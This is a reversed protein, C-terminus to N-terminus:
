ASVVMMTVPSYNLLKVVKEFLREVLLAKKNGGLFCRCAAAWIRGCGVSNGENIGRMIRGNLFRGRGEGHEETVGHYFFEEWGFGCKEWGCFSGRRGTRGEIILIEGEVEARM